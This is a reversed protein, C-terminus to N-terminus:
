SVATVTLITLLIGVVLFLKLLLCCMLWLYGDVVHVTGVTVKKVGPQTRGLGTAQMWILNFSGCKVPFYPRNFSNVDM